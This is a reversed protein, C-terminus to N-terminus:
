ISTSSFGGDIPLVAGTIFSSAENCLLFLLAGVLEEDKGFRGYPTHNLIKKARATPTGDENCLLARNQNTVLFGPAIANVRIGENAFHTALWQTLNSIGAKAASYAITKTLPTFAAMSSINIINCVQRGVMDRAFVQTPLITGMFNLDQVFQIGSAEMNFFTIIDTRDVDGQEYLEKTTTARPSNGGAGNILIDCPGLDAKISKHVLELADRDLVDAKYARTNCGLNCIEKVYEDAAEYNIDLLAVKAGSLALAKSFLSCLIGGAGTIVAVKGTLDVKLPLNM